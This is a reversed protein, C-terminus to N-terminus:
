QPENTTEKRSDGNKRDRLVEGVSRLRLNLYSSCEIPAPSKPRMELIHLARDTLPSVYRSM